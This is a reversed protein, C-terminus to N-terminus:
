VNSDRKLKGSVKIESSFLSLMSSFSLHHIGFGGFFMLSKTKVIAKGSIRANCDLERINEELNHTDIMYQVM